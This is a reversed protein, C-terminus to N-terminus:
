SEYPLPEATQDRNDAQAKAAIVSDDADGLGIDRVDLAEHGALQVVRATGRPLDADILFRM